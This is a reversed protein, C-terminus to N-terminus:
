KMKFFSRCLSKVSIILLFSKKKILILNQNNGYSDNWNLIIILYIQHYFITYIHSSISPCNVVLGYPPRTTPPHVLVFNISFEVWTSTSTSTPTSSPLLLICTFLCLICSHLFALTRTLVIESKKQWAWRRKYWSLILVDM